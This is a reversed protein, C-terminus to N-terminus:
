SAYERTNIVYSDKNLTISNNNKLTLINAQNDVIDIKYNDKIDYNKFNKIYWKVFNYDLITNGVVMFCNDNNINIDLTKNDDIYEVALFSYDTKIDEISNKLIYYNDNNFTHKFLIIIDQNKKNKLLTRSWIKITAICSLIKFGISYRCMYLFIIIITLIYNM